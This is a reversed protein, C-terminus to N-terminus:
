LGFNLILIIPLRQRISEESESLAFYVVDERATMSSPVTREELEFVNEIFHQEQEMLVGAEAGADVIASIDDFTISDDRATDFKFASFDCRRHHQHDALPKVM